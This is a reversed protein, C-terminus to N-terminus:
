GLLVDLYSAAMRDLGFVQEARRRAGERFCDQDVFIEAAARALGAVDPPDLRWPDGGYPVVRGSEMQVLEPLAGTAFAVVPLACALAEIVSNPCAANLDASYLLHASRDVQPIQEAAVEGLFRLSTKARNQWEAQFSPSVRGAVVLEVPRDLGSEPQNLQGTLAVATELGIEYGGGLTGEVM